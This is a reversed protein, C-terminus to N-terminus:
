RLGEGSHACSSLVKSPRNSQSLVNQYDLQISSTGGPGAIDSKNALVLVPISGLDRHSLLHEFTERADQSECSGDVVFVLSHAEPYYKDWIARLGIQGGLDWMVLKSDCAELKAINLGVTPVIQKSPLGVADTYMSKLKELM